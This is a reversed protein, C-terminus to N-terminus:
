DFAQTLSISVWGNLLFAVNLSSKRIPHFCLKFYDSPHTSQPLPHRLCFLNEGRDSRSDATIFLAEAEALRRPNNYVAFAAGAKSCSKHSVRSELCSFRNRSGTPLFTPASQSRENPSLSLFAELSSYPFNDPKPLEFLFGELEQHYTCHKVSRM